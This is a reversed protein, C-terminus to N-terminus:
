WVRRKLLPDKSVLLTVQNNELIHEKRKLKPILRKLQSPCVVQQWRFISWSTSSSYPSSNTSIAQRSLTPTWIFIVKHFINVCTCQSAASHARKLISSKKISYTLLILGQHECVEINSSTLWHLTQIHSILRYKQYKQFQCKIVNRPLAGGAHLVVYKM